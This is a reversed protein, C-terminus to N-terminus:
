SSGYRNVVEHAIKGGEALFRSIVAQANQTCVHYTREYDHFGRNYSGALREKKATTKAEAELLTQMKARWDGSPKSGCLDDLYTLAGLIEALRLMEPDYPAPPGEVATAPAGSPTNPAPTAAIAKKPKPKSPKAKSTQSKHPAGSPAAAPPPSPKGFGFLFDFQANGPTPAIGACFTAVVIASLAHRSKTRVGAFIMAAKM